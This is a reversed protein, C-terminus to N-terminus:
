IKIKASKLLSCLLNFVVLNSSPRFVGLWCVSLRLSRPDPLGPSPPPAPHPRCAAM